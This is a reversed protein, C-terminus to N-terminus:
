TQDGKQLLETLYLAFGVALNKYLSYKRDFPIKIELPGMDYGHLSIEQQLCLMAHDEGISSFTLPDQPAMGCFLLLGDKPPSTVRCSGSVLTLAATPEETGCFFTRDSLLLDCHGHPTSKEIPTKEGWSFEQLRDRLYTEMLPFPESCLIKM